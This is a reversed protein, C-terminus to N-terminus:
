FNAPEFGGGDITPLSGQLFHFHTYGECHQWPLNSNTYYPSLLLVLYLQRFLPLLDSVYGYQGFLAHIPSIAYEWTM